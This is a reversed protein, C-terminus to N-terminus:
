STIERCGECLYQITFMRCCPMFVTRFLAQTKLSVKSPRSPKIVKVEPFTLLDRVSCPFLTATWLVPLILAREWPVRLWRRGSYSFIKKCKELDTHWTPICERQWVTFGSSISWMGSVKLLSFAVKASTHHRGASQRPQYFLKGM